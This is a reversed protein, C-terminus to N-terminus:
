MMNGTVGRPNTSWWKLVIYNGILHLYKNTIIVHLVLM